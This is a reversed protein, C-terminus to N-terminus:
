TTVRKMKRVQQTTKNTQTGVAFDIEYMEPRGIINLTFKSYGDDTIYKSYNTEIQSSPLADYQNWNNYDNQYYWRATGNNLPIQMKKRSIKRTYGTKVNRQHQNDSSFNIDYEQPRDDIYRRVPPTRVVGSAPLRGQRYQDYYGELLQNIEDTYPEMKGNDKQWLWVYPSTYKIDDFKINNDNNMSLKSFSSGLSSSSPPARIIFNPPTTKAYSFVMLPLCYSYSWCTPNNVVYCFKGQTKILEPKGNYIYCLILVGSNRAYGKSTNSTIGFYEGPGYVQGSRRNPDFGSDCIPVVGSDGTGHWAYFGNDIDGVGNNNLSSSSSSSSNLHVAKLFKTMAECKNHLGPNPDVRLIPGTDVTWERRGFEEGRKMIGDFELKFRKM